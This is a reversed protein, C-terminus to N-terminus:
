LLHQQKAEQVETFHSLGVMMQKGAGTDHVFGIKEIEDFPLRLIQKTDKFRLEWVSCGKLQLSRYLGLDMGKGNWERFIHRATIDQWFVGNDLWGVLRGNVFEIEM